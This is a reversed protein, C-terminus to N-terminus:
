GGVSPVTARVTVDAQASAREEAQAAVEAGSAADDPELREPLALARLTYARQEGPTPCPAEWGPLGEAGVPWERAGEPVGGPGFSSVLPDIGTVVWIPETSVDDRVVIVVDAADAPLGGLAVAPSVAAGTCLHETPLFGDASVGPVAVSMGELSPALTSTTAPPLTQDPRPPPLERGDSRSCGGVLLGALGVAAVSRSLRGM